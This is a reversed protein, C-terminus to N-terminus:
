HNHGGSGGKMDSYGGFLQAQADLLFAGDLVVEEGEMLGNKVEVYGSTEYGTEIVKAQFQKESIKTWVVKRKGTDIISTRPIVLQHDKLTVNLNVDAIMGPKLLGNQNDVTTRVKLIHTDLSITPEIFDIKSRYTEGPIASFYMDVDQGNKVLGADSEYVDIEVWVESLDSLDFFSQGEKFYKGVIANKRRVIGSVSSYITINRPVKNKDYWNKYQSEKVGWLKLREESQELLEKFTKTQNREYSKRALLYEEGATILVPSYIDVVPDGAQILSGTSQIYVKEVRGGVRVSVSSEKDESQLVVGLLRIEKTMKMTTAPFFNPNFHKLQSKRLKVKAIAEKAKHSEKLLMPTDDLPCSGPVDSTVEPDSKCYWVSKEKHNLHKTHSENHEDMDMEVKTLNMHCIPCKGPKDERIQPHMSCTYYSMVKEDKSKQEESSFSCGILLSTMLIFILKSM